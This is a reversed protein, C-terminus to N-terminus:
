GPSSHFPGTEQQAASPGSWTLTVSHHPSTLDVHISSVFTNPFDSNRQSLGVSGQEARTWIADHYEPEAHQRVLYLQLSLLVLAILLAVNLTRRNALAFVSKM